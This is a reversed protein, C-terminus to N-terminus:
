KNSTEACIMEGSISVAPTFSVDEWCEKRPIDGDGQPDRVEDGSETISCLAM